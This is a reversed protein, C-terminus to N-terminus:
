VELKMDGYKIWNLKRMAESVALSLAGPLVFCMMIIEIVLLVPNAGEAAMTQYMMWPGVLGCTGMGSGTANSTLHLVCTSVPGLIISTIIAPLWILPRRLINPMQLMSTGIGQSVLGSFKNERFSAVAFGVMNACCGITAAGAALGNLGLSVGIAASSIPLTLAIGMLASVTIGAIFSHQEAGWNIMGGIAAMMQAIPRGVILAVAGGFLIAISPVLIIDLKTKGEILGACECAVLAAVFAGVPEGPGSVAFVGDAFLTGALIQSAFAGTMGAVGASVTLLPTKRFRSAVGVGIGFGTMRKAITAIVTLYTGAQGPILGGIQELITGILLTAFLGLAMGNLGDIFVHQLIRVVVPKQKSDASGNRKKQSAM